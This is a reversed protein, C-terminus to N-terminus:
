ANYEPLLDSDYADSFLRCDRQIRFLITNPNEYDFPFDDSLVILTKQIRHYKRSDLVKFIVDIHIGIYDELLTIKTPDTEVAAAEGLIKGGKSVETGGTIEFAYAENTIKSSKKKTAGIFSWHTNPDGNSFVLSGDISNVYPLAKATAESEREAIWVEVPEAIIGPLSVNMSM